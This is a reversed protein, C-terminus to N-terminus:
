VWKNNNQWLYSASCSYSFIYFLLLILESLKKSNEGSNYCVIKIHKGKIITETTGQWQSMKM